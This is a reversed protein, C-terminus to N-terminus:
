ARVAVLYIAGFPLRYGGDASRPAAAMLDHAFSDFRERSWGGTARGRAGVRLWTRFHEGDRLPIAIGPDAATHISTWGATAAWAAVEAESPYDDGWPLGYREYVPGLVATPVVDSPGPVSLSLRAGPRAVRQWERLTAIRDDAFLLAHVAVVVDVTADELPLWAFDAEVLEAGAARRRALDLMGPAADVGIVRRGEGAALELANGTGTGLDLVTEGPRLAARRIVEVAVPRLAPAM